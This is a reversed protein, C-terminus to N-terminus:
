NFFILAITLMLMSNTTVFAAIASNPAQDLGAAGAGVPSSVGIGNIYSVSGNISSSLGCHFAISLTAVTASHNACARGFMKEDATIDCSARGVCLHAADTMVNRSCVGPVIGSRCSGDHEGFNAFDIKTIVHTLSTCSLTENTGDAITRCHVDEVTSLAANYRPSTWAGCEYDVVLARKEADCANPSTGLAPFATIDVTCTERNICQQTVGQTVDVTCKGATGGCDVKDGGYLASKVNVIMTGPDCILWSQNYSTFCKAVTAPVTVVETAKEDVSGESVDKKSTREHSVAVEV